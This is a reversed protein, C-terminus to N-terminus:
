GGGDEEVGKEEEVIKILDSEAQELMSILSIYSNIIAKLHSLKKSKITLEVFSKDTRIETQVEESNQIDPELSKKVFEPKKCEIRLIVENVEHM